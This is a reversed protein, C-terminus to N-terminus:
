QTKAPVSTFYVFKVVHYKVRATFNYGRAWVMASGGLRPTPLFLRRYFKVRMRDIKVGGTFVDTFM